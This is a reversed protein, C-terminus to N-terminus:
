ILKFLKLEQFISLKFQNVFCITLFMKVCKRSKAKSNIKKHKSLSHGLSARWKNDKLSGSHSDKLLGLALICVISIGKHNDGFPAFLWQHNRSLTLLVVLEVSPSEKSLFKCKAMSVQHGLM